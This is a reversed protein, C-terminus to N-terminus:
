SLGNLDKQTLWYKKPLHVMDDVYMRWDREQKTSPIPGSM